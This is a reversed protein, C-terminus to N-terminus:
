NIKETESLGELWTMAAETQTLRFRLAQIEMFAEMSKAKSHMRQCKEKLLAMQAKILRTEAGRGLTRAFYLKCLFELRLDRVHSVPRRVWDKFMKGGMPTLTYIKRDPRKEQAHRQHTILGERELRVLLAYVQSLGLTWIAGLSAFLYHYLDYGHAPGRELAGLVAYEAPNRNEEAVIKNKFHINM